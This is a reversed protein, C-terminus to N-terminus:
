IYKQKQMTKLGNMHCVDIKIIDLFGTILLCVKKLDEVESKLVEIEREWAGREALYRAESARANGMWEEKEKQTGHLVTLTEAHQKQLNQFQTEIESTMSSSYPPPLVSTSACKPCYEPSINNPTSTALLSSSSDVSATRERLKVEVTKAVAIEVAENREKELKSIDKRLREIEGKAERLEEGDCGRGAGEPGKHGSESTGGVGGSDELEKVTGRAKDRECRYRECVVRVEEVEREAAKARQRYRDRESRLRDVDAQLNECVDQYTACKESVSDYAFQIDSLDQQLTTM